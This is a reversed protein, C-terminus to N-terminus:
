SVSIIALSEKVPLMLSESVPYADDEAVYGDKYQKNSLRNFAALWQKKSELVYEVGTMRCLIFSHLWADTGDTSFIVQELNGIFRDLQATLTVISGTEFSGLLHPGSVSFDGKFTAYILDVTGALYKHSTHIEIEVKPPHNILNNASDQFIGVPTDKYYSEDAM